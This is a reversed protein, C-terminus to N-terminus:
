PVVNFYILVYPTNCDATSTGNGTVINGYAEDQLGFAICYLMIRWRQAAPRNTCTMSVTSGAIRSLSCDVPIQGGDLITGTGTDSINAPVSSSTLRVQFTETPEAVGDNVVSVQVYAQAATTPITVTGSTVATYDAGATTTVDVIQYGVTIATNKPRDTVQIMISFSGNRVGCTYPADDLCYKTYEYAQGNGVTIVTNPNAAQAAPLLCFASLLAVGAVATLRSGIRISTRM